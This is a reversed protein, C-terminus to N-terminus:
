TWRQRSSPLALRVTVCPHGECDSILAKAVEFGERQYLALAATNGGLTHTWAHPGAATLAHRLLLRGIGRRYHAPDVYLWSIYANELEVSVFGLIPGEPAGECALWTKSDWFHEADAVETMPRWGRPDCSGRLEDRRAADHIRCIHPWDPDRYERILFM